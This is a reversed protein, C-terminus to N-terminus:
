DQMGVHEEVVVVVIEAVIEVDVDAVDVVVADVYAHEDLVAAVEEEMDVVVAAAAAALNWELSACACQVRCQWLRATQETEERKESEM